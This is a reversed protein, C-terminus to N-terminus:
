WCNKLEDKLDEIDEKLSNKYSILREVEDCLLAIICPAYNEWDKRRSCDFHKDLWIERIDKLPPLESGMRKRRLCRHLQNCLVLKSM